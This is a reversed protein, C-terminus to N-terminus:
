RPTAAYGDWLRRLVDLVVIRRTWSPQIGHAAAIVDVPGESSAIDFLFTVVAFADANPTRGLMQYLAARLPTRYYGEEDLAVAGDYGGLWAAFAPHWAPTGDPAVDDTTLQTPPEQRYAWRAWHIFGTLSKPERANLMRRAESRRHEDAHPREIRERAAQWSAAVREARRRRQATASM